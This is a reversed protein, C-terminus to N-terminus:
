LVHKGLSALFEHCGHARWLRVPVKVQNIDEQGLKKQVDRMLSTIAEGVDPNPIMKSLATLTPIALGLLAQLSASLQTLREGPDSTPFFVAAPINGASPELRFGVSTLLDKWGLVDGVKNEISAQTTYMATRHGQHIRQLSKEVQVYFVVIILM